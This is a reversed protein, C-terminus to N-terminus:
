FLSSLLGGWFHPNQMKWPTKFYEPPDGLVRVLKKEYPGQLSGAHTSFTIKIKYESLSSFETTASHVSCLVAMFSRSFM